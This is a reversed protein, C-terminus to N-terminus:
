ASDINEVTTAPTSLQSVHCVCRGSEVCQDARGYELVLLRPRVAVANLTEGSRQVVHDGAALSHFASVIRPWDPPPLASEKGISSWGLAFVALQM